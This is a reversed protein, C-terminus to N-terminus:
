SGDRLKARLCILQDVLHLILPVAEENVGLKQRLDQILSIRALDEEDLRDPRYPLIWERQIFVTLVSHSTHTLQSAEDLSFTKRDSM